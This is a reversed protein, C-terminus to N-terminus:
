TPTLLRLAVVRLVVRSDTVQSSSGLRNGTKISFFVANSSAPM